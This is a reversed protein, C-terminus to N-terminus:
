RMRKSRLILHTVDCNVALEHTVVCFSRDQNKINKRFKCRGDTQNPLNSGSTVSSRDNLGAYDM